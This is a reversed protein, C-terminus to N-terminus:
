LGVRGEPTQDLRHQIWAQLALSHNSFVWDVGRALQRCLNNPSAVFGVGVRQGARHHRERRKETMFLYHGAVGGWSNKLVYDSGWGPNVDTVLVLAERPLRRCESLLKPELTLIHFDRVPEFETLLRLLINEREVSLPEKVEIMLHCSRGLDHLVEGLTPLPCHRVLDAVPVDGPCHSTGPFLRATSPDHLLVPVQDQSWRVDFEIGWIGHRRAERISALSNEHLGPGRAGRHAVVKAQRLIENNVVPAPWWQHALDATTQAIQLLTEMM